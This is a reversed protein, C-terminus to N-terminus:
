QNRNAIRERIRKGIVFEKEGNEWKFTGTNDCTGDGYDVTGFTEGNASYEVEGSVIFRCDGAKQLPQTIERQYENGDSDTCTGSGTITMVDDKFYFPASMGEEWKRTIEAYCEVETGDSLTVVLDRVILVERGDTNSIVTKEITGNIKLSDASFDTFSVTREAGETNMPASVDIEIMGSLICGNNLELEEGYDLTVTRPFDGDTWDIEVDPLNGSRYRDRLKERFTTGSKLQDDTMAIASLEDVTETTGTFLDVEYDTSEVADEIAADTTLVSEVTVNFDPNAYDTAPEVEDKNCATFLVATVSILSIVLKKM